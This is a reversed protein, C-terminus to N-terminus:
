PSTRRMDGVKLHTKRPQVTQGFLSASAVMGFLGLSLRKM